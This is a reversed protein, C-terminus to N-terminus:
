SAESLSIPENRVGKEHRQRDFQFYLLAPIMSAAAIFLFQVIRALMTLDDRGVDTVPGARAREVLDHLDAGFFTAAGPVAVTFVFVLVLIALDKARRPLTQAVERFSQAL